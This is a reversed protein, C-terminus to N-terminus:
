VVGLLSKMTAAGAIGDVTLKKAKQYERVASDTKSGFIGDVTGCNHGRGNLLIQLARVDEGESGKSLERLNITVGSYPAAPTPEEKKEYPNFEVPKLEGAKKELGAAKAIGEMTAYAQAKAFEEKLIVPVDTTSDMFGYEMLVAPMTTYKLVYFDEALTADWRNGKLGGAEICAAYIAERYAAGVTGEKYSFAVLGGGSGGNIGANHHISLFFDAGWDNAKKVRNALVTPEIGKPDDVRLLEVDYAKAAEAFYRAIRDNLFWENVRPSHLSTPIGNSTSNNHGAGYAIKFM